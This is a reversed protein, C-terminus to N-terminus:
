NKIIRGQFIGDRGKANLIYLGSNWDKTNIVYQGAFPGNAKYVLSGVANFVEISEVEKGEFEMQLQNQVPNPFANLASVPLEDDTGVMQLYELYTQYM